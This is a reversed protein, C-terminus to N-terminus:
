GRPITTVFSLANAYTASIPPLLNCRIFRALKSCVYIGIPEFGRASTREGSLLVKYAVNFTEPSIAAHSKTASLDSPLVFTPLAARLRSIEDSPVASKTVLKLLPVIEFTRVDSRFTRCVM